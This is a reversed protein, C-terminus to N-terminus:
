AQDWPNLLKVGLRAFDKTNRTVLTLNHELATAAILGDATDLPRGALQRQGDLAGWREAIPQTVPLIRNGFWPILGTELWEKLQDRRHSPALITLGKRLEGLNVVSMFLSNRDQRKMWDAVGPHPSPRFLESAINTDVLFENM